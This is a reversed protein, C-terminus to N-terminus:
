LYQVRDTVRVTEDYTGGEGGDARKRKRKPRGESGGVEAENDLDPSGNQLNLPQRSQLNEENNDNM